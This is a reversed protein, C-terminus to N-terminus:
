ESCVKPTGGDVDLTESRSNVVELFAVAIKQTNFRIFKMCSKIASIEPLCPPAPITATVATSDQQHNTM